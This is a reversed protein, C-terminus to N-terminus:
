ENEGFRRGRLCAEPEELGDALIRVAPQHLRALLARRRTPVPIPVDCEDVLGCLREELARLRTVPKAAKVALVVVKAGDELPAEHLRTLTLRPQPDRRPEPSEPLDPTVKGLSSAPQLARHRRDPILDRV